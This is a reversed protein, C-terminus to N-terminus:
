FMTRSRSSSRSTRQARISELRRGRGGAVPARAVALSHRAGTRAAAQGRRARLIRLRRGSQVPPRQHQITEGVPDFQPSEPWLQEVVTARHRLRPSRSELDLQASTAATRRHRTQQDARLGALLRQGRHPLDPQRAARRRQLSRSPRSTPCSRRPARSRRRTPSPAARRSKPLLRGAGAARGPTSARRTRHRRDAGHIRADRQRHRRHACVHSVLSAVGLIVGSM